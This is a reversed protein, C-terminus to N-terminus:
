TRRSAVMVIGLELEVRDIEDQIPHVTLTPDPSSTWRVDVTDEIGIETLIEKIRKLKSLRELGTRSHDFGERLLQALEDNPDSM